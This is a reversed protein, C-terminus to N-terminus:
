LRATRARSSPRISRRSFFARAGFNIGGRERARGKAAPFRGAAYNSGAGILSRRRLIIERHQELLAVPSVTPKAPKEPTSNAGTAALSAHKARTHTHTDHRLSPSSPPWTRRNSTPITSSDHLTGMPSISSFHRTVDSDTDEHPHVPKDLM